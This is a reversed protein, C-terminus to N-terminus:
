KTAQWCRRSHTSPKAVSVPGNSNPDKGLLARLPATVDSHQKDFQVFNFNVSWKMLHRCKM